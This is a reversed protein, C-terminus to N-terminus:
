PTPQSSELWQLHFKAVDAMYGGTQQELAKEIWHKSQDRQQLSEYYLGLYLYGYFKALAQGNPGGKANEAASQVELPTKEGRFLQLIDMMPVRADGSSPILSKRAADVGDLKAVCLFHWVSNEVDAPNVSRHSEFQERGEQFRKAYYLAIGRQWDYPKSPPNLEQAEDFDKCAADLHGLRFHIAGRMHILSSARPNKAIQADILQIAQDGKGAALAEEIQTTWSEQAFSTAALLSLLLFPALNRPFSSLVLLSVRTRFPFQM